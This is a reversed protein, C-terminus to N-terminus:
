CKGPEVLCYAGEVNVELIKNMHKGMNIVVSGAVRPAAGGYGLNRGISIPWLPIQRENAARIIAQVEAVNRPSIVASALFLDKPIVHYTDHTFNQKM